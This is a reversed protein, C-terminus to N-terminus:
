VLPRGTRIRLRVDWLYFNFPFQRLPKPLRRVVAGIAAMLRDFRRQQRSTWSFRMQERFEPPLFGITVFRVFPGFLVSLPKPQFRLEAVATLHERVTDDISVRKLGDQWYKGFADLDSPWRDPPVQLTTGFTASARYFEEALARDPEGVLLRYSDEFGKYICAAVWLQLEKDFANYRVPSADTSYVQAHAKNVGRRFAAKDEDSGLAAVALYSLTTRTRKAPHKFLNGSDVRSEVVGHGVEPWSLQMIVNAGGALFAAAGIVADDLVDTRTTTRM